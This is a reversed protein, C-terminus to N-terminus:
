NNKLLVFWKDFKEDTPAQSSPNCFNSERDSRQVNNVREARDSEIM